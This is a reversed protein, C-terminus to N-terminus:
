KIKRNKNMNFEKSLTELRRIRSKSNFDNNMMKEFSRKNYFEQFVIINKGPKIIRHEEKIGLEDLIEPIFTIREYKFYSFILYQKRGIKILDEVSFGKSVGFDFKSKLTMTRLLLFGESSNM